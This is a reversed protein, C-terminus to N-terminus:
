GPVVEERTHHCRVALHTSRAVSLRRAVGPPRVISAHGGLVQRVGGLQGLPQMLASQPHGRLTLLHQVRDAGKLVRRGFSDTRGHGVDVRRGDVSGDLQKLLEAQQAVGVEAVTRRGEPERVILMNVDYAVIAASDDICRVIEDIAQDSPQAVLAPEGDVPRMERNETPATITKIFCCVGRLRFM